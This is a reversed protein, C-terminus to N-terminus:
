GTVRRRGGAIAVVGGAILAALFGTLVYPPHVAARAYYDAVGICVAPVPGDHFDGLSGCFETTLLPYWGNNASALVAITAAYVAAFALAGVAIGWM